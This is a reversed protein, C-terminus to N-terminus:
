TSSSSPSPLVKALGPRFEVLKASPPHKFWKGYLRLYTGDAIMEDIKTDFADVLAQNGKKIPFSTGQTTDAEVAIKLTPQKAVYEEADVGGVVFGDIGGSLLQGIAAPQDKFKTITTGPLKTTAFTEQVSGSVVGVKKGGFDPLSSPSAEKKTLIAVYGWYYPKVFDVNKAREATAGVGGIGMDYKNAPLGALLGQLDTVKHEIRLNLRKAVEDALDVAFGQPRGSADVVVFPPQASNTGATIVGPAILGYPNASASSSGSPKSSGCAATLPVAVMIMACLALRSIRRSM